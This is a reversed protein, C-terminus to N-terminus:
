VRFYNQRGLVEEVWGLGLVARGSAFFGGFPAVLSAALALIIAHFSLVTIRIDKGAEQGMAGGLPASYPIIMEESLIKKTAADCKLSTLESFPMSALEAQPCLFFDMKKMINVAIVAWGTTCIAAGVFGEVTKKPSLAILRTRGFMQGCIYAFVDNTIVLTTPLLFWVLGTYINSLNACCQMVILVITM